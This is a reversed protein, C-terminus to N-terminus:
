QNTEDCKRSVGKLDPRFRQQEIEGEARANESRRSGQGIVIVLVRLVADAGFIRGGRQCLHTDVQM